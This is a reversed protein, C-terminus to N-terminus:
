YSRKAHSASVFAIASCVRESGYMDPESALLGVSLIAAPYQSKGRISQVHGCGFVTIVPDGICFGGSLLDRRLEDQNSSTELTLEEVRVKGFGFSFRVDCFGEDYFTQRIIGVGWLRCRVLSGVSLISSPALYAERSWPFKVEIRKDTVRLATIVGSGFKTAVVSGVYAHPILANAENAFNLGKRLLLAKAVKVDLLFRNLLTFVYESSSGTPDEALYRATGDWVSHLTELEMEVDEFAAKISMLRERMISIFKSEMKYQRSDFKPNETNGNGESSLPKGAQQRIAAFLASRPLAESGKDVPGDASDSTPSITSQGRQRIASLLSSRADATDNLSSTDYDVEAAQPASTSALARGSNGCSQASLMTAHPNSMSVTGNQKGATVGRQRIADLMANRCESSGNARNSVGSSTALKTQESSPAPRNRRITGQEFQRKRLAEAANFRNLDEVMDEKIEQELKDIDHQLARVQSDCLVNSFHKAEALNSLDNIFLLVDGEGRDKLLSALTIGEAGELDTGTNLRNGIALVLEFCRALRESRLIEYCAQTTVNM